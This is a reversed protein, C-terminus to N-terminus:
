KGAKSKNMLADVDAELHQRKVNKAHNLSMIRRFNCYVARAIAYASVHECMYLYNGASVSICFSAKTREDMKLGDLSRKRRYVDTEETM